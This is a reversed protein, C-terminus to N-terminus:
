FLLLTVKADATFGKIFKIQLYGNIGILPIMVLIILALKWSAAFAIILGSVASAANKVSLSLSDGVITRVLSADASLRAGMAGSSNESKDFWEVEMHVVKEFCMVRIRRILRGGAIAFLYTHTPNVILSAVGLLVFIMSWFRSDRKLEHPPKFFAEISKAFLVGFIPFITGNVAGVLTGLILIPIEPKNLAAIRTISVNHSPEKPTETTEQAALLGLVTVSDEDPVRRSSLRSIINRRSSGSSISGDRM